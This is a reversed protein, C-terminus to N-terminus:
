VAAGDIGSLPMGDGDVQEGLWAPIPALEGTGGAIRREMWALARGVVQPISFGVRHVGPPTGTVPFNAHAVVQFGAGPRVGLDAFTQMAAPLLNDDGILLGDPREGEPLRLLLRLLNPVLCAGSSGVLHHLHAGDDMGHGRLLERLWAGHREYVPQPVLCAPRRVGQRALVEAQRRLVDRTDLHVPMVQESAIALASGIATRQIGPEALLPSGALDFPPSSFLIGAVRREAVERELAAMGDGGPRVDYCSDIWRGQDRATRRAVTDVRTWLENWSPGGPHGYFAVVFRHRHPPRRAVFSGNRGQVEVHGQEVLRDFADQVTLPPANCQAAIEQRTPLRDGPAFVGGIILGRIHDMVADRRFPRRTRRPPPPRIRSSAMM